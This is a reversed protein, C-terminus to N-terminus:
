AAEELSLNIFIPLHDSFQQKNPQGNEKLLNTGNFRTVVELNQDSFFDLLSPRLLVQDFSNWFFCAQGSSPYHYTGPPGYSLDGLRSWMPNYFFSRAKGQVTREKKLAIKRDMVAHLGDATVMGNEFPNMNFDGIGVTRQHGVRQEAECVMESLRVSLMTHDIESLHLKSPLHVAVLIFDPGLPPVIQKIAIGVSDSVPIVSKRVFRTYISLRESLNLPLLFKRKQGSNLTTLIDVDSLPSEALVLIDVDYQRSLACLENLLHKRNLNWFLLNM